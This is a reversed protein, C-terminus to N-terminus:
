GSLRPLLSNILRDLNGQEIDPKPIAIAQLQQVFDLAIEGTYFAHHNGSMGLYPGGHGSDLRSSIIEQFLRQREILNLHDKIIDRMKFSYFGFPVIQPLLKDFARLQHPLGPLDLLKLICDNPHCRFVASNQDSTFIAGALFQHSAENM